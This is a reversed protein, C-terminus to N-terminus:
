GSAKPLLANAATLWRAEASVQAIDTVPTFDIWFHDLNGIPISGHFLDKAAELAPDDEGQRREMALPDVALAYVGPVARDENELEQSAVAAVVRVLWVPQVAVSGDGQPGEACSEGDCGDALGLPPVVFDAADLYALIAEVSALAIVTARDIMADDDEDVPFLRLEGQGTFVARQAGWARCGASWRSFALGHLMCFDELAAFEGWAVDQAMLALPSGSVVHSPTFAGGDWELSLDAEGILRTLAPVHIAPLTGGITISASVRDVM